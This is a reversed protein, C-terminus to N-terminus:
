TLIKIDVEDVVGKKEKIMKLKKVMYQTECTCKVSFITKALESALAGRGTFIM